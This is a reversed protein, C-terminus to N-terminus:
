RNNTSYTISETESSWVQWLGRWSQSFSNECQCIFRSFNDMVVYIYMKTNNALKFVTVDFHLLEKPRSARVGVKNGKKKFSLKSPFGLLRAYIYFTTLSCFAARKRIMKAYVLTKVKLSPLHKDLYSKIANVEKGVLQHPHSSRCLQLLSLNCKRHRNWSSLKQSSINMWHFLKSSPIVKRFRQHIRNLQQKTEIDLKPIAKKIVSSFTSHIACIVITLCDKIIRFSNSWKLILSWTKLWRLVLSKPPTM